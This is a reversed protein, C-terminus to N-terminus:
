GSAVVARRRGIRCRTSWSGAPRIRRGDARVATLGTGECGIRDGAALFLSRDLEFAYGDDAEVPLPAATGGREVVGKVPSRVTM